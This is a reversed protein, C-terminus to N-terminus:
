PTIANSVVPYNALYLLLMQNNQGQRDAMTPLHIRPANSVGLGASGFGFLSLGARRAGRLEPAKLLGPCLWSSPFIAVFLRLFARLSIKLAFRNTM